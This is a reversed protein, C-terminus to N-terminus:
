FMKRQIDNITNQANERQTNNNLYQSSVRQTNNDNLNENDNIIKISTQKTNNNSSIANPLLNRSEQLIGDDDWDEIVESNIDMKKQTNVNLKRIDYLYKLKRDQNNLRDNQLHICKELNNNISVLNKNNNSIDKNEKIVEEMQVRLKEWKRLNDKNTEIVVDLDKNRKSLKGNTELLAKNCESLYLNSAKVENM